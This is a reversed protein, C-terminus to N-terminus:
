VRDFWVEARQQVTEGEPGEVGEGAGWFGGTVGFGTVGGQIDDLQGIAFEVTSPAGDMADHVWYQQKEKTKTQVSKSTDIIPLSKFGSVNFLNGDFHQLRVHSLWTSDMYAFFTPVADSTNATGPLRTPIEDILRECSATMPFASETPLTSESSKTWKLSAISPLACLELTGYAPHQYTGALSTFPVSPSTPNDPRPILQRSRKEYAETVRQKARSNWDIPRLSFLEDVIRWKIIEMIVSGYADDNTLVAVGVNNFPFRTIQTHFGPTGGGHEIFNFGRYSSRMQGGGYNVPAYEPYSSVSAQALVTVGTAVKEIVSSPIVQEDTIPNKGQLLLVQLWTAVDRASSIVGGAGSIINGDEGGYPNWFPMARPTGAGLLNESKNVGDRGFGDALNGSEEAVVSSYTTSNLGLPIFLHNKVYHTFPVHTLVDPLYSLVTYMINNYQWVERFESSPKLYKIKSILSQVPQTNHYAMDHRPLGTRHSMLDIITSGSSAIPDSLEWEPIISSIKTNWSIRPSLTENSILLGTAIVDFLKSNSGIAFLTDGTVKSGDTKAIGYGKNEVNWSGDENRQVVAIGVGGASNWDSLVQEIFSDIQLTLINKATVTKVSEQALLPQQEQQQTKALTVTATLSVTFLSPLHM